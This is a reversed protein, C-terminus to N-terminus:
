QTVAQTENAATVKFVDELWNKGKIGINTPSLEFNIETKYNPNFHIDAPTVDVENLFNLFDNREAAFDVPRKQNFAVEIGSCYNQLRPDNLLEPKRSVLNNLGVYFYSRDMVSELDAKHEQIENFASFVNAYFGAKKMMTDSGEDGAAEAERLLENMKPMQMMYRLVPKIAQIRPDKNESLVSDEMAKSIQANSVFPTSRSNKLSDCFDSIPKQSDIMDAFIAQKAARNQPHNAPNTKIQEETREIAVSSDTSALAKLQTGDQSAAIVTPPKKSIAFNKGISSVSPLFLFIGLGALIIIAGFVAFIILALKLIRKM